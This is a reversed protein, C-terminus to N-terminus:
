QLEISCNTCKIPHQALVRTVGYGEGISAGCSACRRLVARIVFLVVLTVFWLLRWRPDRRPFDFLIEAKFAQDMTLVSIWAGGVLYLCRLLNRRRAHVRQISALYAPSFRPQILGNVIETTVFPQAEQPGLPSMAPADEAPAEPPLPAGTAEALERAIGNALQVNRELLGPTEPNAVALRVEGHTVAAKSDAAALSRLARQTREERLFRITAAPHEGQVQFHADLDPIGVQIDQMGRLNSGSGQPTLSLGLPLPAPIISRV